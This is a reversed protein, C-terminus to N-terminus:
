IAALVGRTYGVSEALIPFLDEVDKDHELSVVGDYDIDVLTRLFKPIDIIGRGIGVTYGEAAAENVDKIHVDLVRDACQRLADSPDIGSRQTHGIDFCIGMRKDMGKLKEYVSQSTPFVKDGPGHIHIALKIDSEKVKREVLPLLDHNPVGILVKVRAAKVYEFAQNVEDTNKMYIVGCGYLDLGTSNVKTLVDNIVDPTSNLPLHFDKFAIKKMGLRKTMALTDAFGFQRLTYSAMGLEFKFTKAAKDSQETNKNSVGGGVAYDGLTMAYVGAGAVSAKLFNRRTTSDKMM